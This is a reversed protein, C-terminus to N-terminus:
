SSGLGLARAFRSLPRIWTAVFYFNVAGKLTYRWAVPEGELFYADRKAVLARAKMWRIEFYRSLADKATLKDAPSTMRGEHIRLLETLTAGPWTQQEEVGSIDQEGRENTTCLVRGGALTSYIWIGFVPIRAVTGGGIIALSTFDPSVWMDYRVRYLKGKGDHCIAAHEWHSKVAELNAAASPVALPFEEGDLAVYYPQVPRKEWLCAGIIFLAFSGLMGFVLLPATWWNELPAPAPGHPIGFILLPAMWWDATM